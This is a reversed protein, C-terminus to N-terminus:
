KQQKTKGHSSVPQQTEIKGEAIQQAESKVNESIWKFTALGIHFVDDWDDESLKEDKLM